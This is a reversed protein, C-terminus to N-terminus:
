AVVEPLKLIVSDGVVEMRHPGGTHMWRVMVPSGNVPMLEDDATGVASETVRRPLYARVPIREDGALRVYVQSTGAIRVNGVHDGLYARRTPNPHSYRVQTSM